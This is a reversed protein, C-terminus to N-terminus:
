TPVVMSLHRAIQNQTGTVTPPVISGLPAIVLERADGGLSRAAFLHGLEHVLLIPLPLLVIFCFLEVPNTGKPEDILFRCYLLPALLYLAHIKVRAGFLRFLPLAWTTPDRM